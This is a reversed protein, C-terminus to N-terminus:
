VHSEGQQKNAQNMKKASNTRLGFWWLCLLRSLYIGSFLSTLVGLGLTIAFGKIPGFGISYLIVATVFTTINADVLSSLANEFGQNIALLMSGLKAKAEKIREFIIVNTDVAMGITLVLGAIGPLTLVMGPLLSMVGILCVLNVLLAVNAVVGLKRYWLLMFGLTFGLGLVLAAMGSKINSEGLRADITQQKVITVPAALAGAKIQLALENAAASSSLNTISFQSGLAGQITAISIVKSQKTIEGNSNKLFESYVTVMKEGVNKSSYALMKQGGVEDLMLNVQPIGFQDNGAIARKINEGTFIPTSKVKIWSEGQKFQKSGSISQHYFNLTATSGIVKRADKPDNVGPLEIRIRDKGQRQVVSETIGLSEIRERMTSLVQVMTQQNFQTLNSENHTLLLQTSSSRNIAIEPFNKECYEVLLNISKSNKSTVRILPESRNSTTQLKLLKVDTLRLKRIQTKLSQRFSKLQQQQAYDLDVNLVLLVGGNLDLGLDIPDDNILQAWQPINDKQHIFLNPLGSLAFFLILLLLLAMKIKSPKQANKM